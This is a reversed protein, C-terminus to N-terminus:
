ASCRAFALALWRQYFGEAVHNLAALKSALGHHQQEVSQQSPQSPDILDAWDRTWRAFLSETMEPHGQLALVHEGYAFGQNACHASAMLPTAGAPIDFTDSHWQYVVFEDAVHALWPSNQAHPHRTVPHWGIETHPMRQVAAGLAQALLQGGLCHGIIPTGREIWFQLAAVEDALWPLPDNVSMPGGMVAVAKPESFDLHALEGLHVRVIRFSVGERQLVAELHGPSCFEVHTLIVVDVPAYQEAKGM